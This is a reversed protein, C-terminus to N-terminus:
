LGPLIYIAVAETRRIFICPYNLFYDNLVDLKEWFWWKKLM